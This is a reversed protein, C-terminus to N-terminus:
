AKNGQQTGLANGVVPSIAYLAIGSEGYVSVQRIDRGTSHYVGSEGPDLIDYEDKGTVEPVCVRLPSGGAATRNKVKVAGCAGRIDKTVKSALGSNVIGQHVRAM